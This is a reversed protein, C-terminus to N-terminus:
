LSNPLSLQSKHTNCPNRFCIRTHRCIRKALLTLATFTINSSNNNNITPSNHIITNHINNNNAIIDKDTNLILTTNSNNNNSILQRIAYRMTSIRTQAAKARSPRCLRISHSNAHTIMLPCTSLRTTAPRMMSNPDQMQTFAPLDPLPKLFSKGGVGSMATADVASGSGGGLEASPGGFSANRAALAAEVRQKQWHYRRYIYLWSIGIAVVIILLLVLLTSLLNADHEAATPTPALTHAPSEVVGGIGALSLKADQAAGMLSGNAHTPWDAGAATIVHIVEPTKGGATHLDSLLGGGLGPQHVIIKPTHQDEQKIVIVEPAVTLQPPVITSTAITVIKNAIRDLKHTINAITSNLTQIMVHTVNPMVPTLADGCAGTQPHCRKDACDCEKHCMVGYTGTPCPLECFEGTWGTTCHCIGSKNDCVAGNQCKCKQKCEDGWHDHDCRQTCHTGTYGPECSCVDPTQCYGRGCGGRCVPKCVTDNISINGEYGACCFRITRTKTVNKIQVVERMETKYNSCRPPIEMCWQSSRIRVPQMTPVKLQEVYTEERVCIHSDADLPLASQEGQKSADIPSNFTGVSPVTATPLATLDTNIRLLKEQAGLCLRLCSLLLLISFLPKANKYAKLKVRKM